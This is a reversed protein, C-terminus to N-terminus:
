VTAIPTLPSGVVGPMRLPPATLLFRSRGHERLWAALEHLYWMEGSRFAWSSCASTTSPCSPTAARTATGASWARSRMTTPWWRRSRRTPSGSSCAVPGPRRSVLVPHPDEGPRPRAGVRAGQHRLRHAVLAHRGARRRRRRGGHDGRAEGPRRRAVRRRSPPGPRGARRPGACRPLGHARPRPPPRLGPARRRRRPRRAAPRGPRGRRPLRQLLRGRGGRRRRRRVRGRRPRALGM